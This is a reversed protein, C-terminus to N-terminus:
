ENRIYGTEDFPCGMEVPKEDVEMYELWKNLYWIAKKVDEINSEKHNHQLLYKIANGMCFDAAGSQGIAAVIVDICEIGNQKYHKPHNINDTM